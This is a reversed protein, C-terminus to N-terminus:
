FDSIAKDYQDNDYYAIGRNNFAIAMNRRDEQGSQIVNTCGKVAQDFSYAKGKNVCWTWDKSEQAGAPAACAMLAAAACLGALRQRRTSTMEERWPQLGSSISGGRAAG